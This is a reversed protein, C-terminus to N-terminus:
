RSEERADRDFDGSKGGSKHMLKLGDIEIARDISKCMDYVTLAAVSCATLAEMEVGTRATTKVTSRCVLTASDEFQFDVAVAEIPIAHCLPILTSTLKSGSIAALRAVALVDGKKLSRERVQQLTEPQMRVRVEAVATRVTIAKDTIDVMRANGADDFHSSSPSM